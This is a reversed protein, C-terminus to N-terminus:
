TVFGSSVPGNGLGRSVEHLFVLHFLGDDRSPAEVVRVENLLVLHFPWVGGGILRM